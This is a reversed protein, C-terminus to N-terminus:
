EHKKLVAIVSQIEISEVDKLFEVKDTRNYGSEGGIGVLCRQYEMLHALITPKDDGTEMCSSTGGTVEGRHTGMNASWGFCSSVIDEVAYFGGRKVKTLMYDLTKIQHWNIHSADDIIVDFPEGGSEQYARELDQESSADGVHIKAAVHPVNEEAWKLACKEDYEFVHLEFKLISEPILDFLHRWALASGGPTGAIMGGGPACGLGIELMRFKVPENVSTAVRDRILRSLQPQYMAQFNHGGDVKDSLGRCGKTFEEAFDKPSGMVWNVTSLSPTVHTEEKSNDVAPDNTQFRSYKIVSLVSVLVLVSILGRGSPRRTPAKNM